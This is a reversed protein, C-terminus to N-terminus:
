VCVCVFVCAQACVRLRVTARVVLSSRLQMQTQPHIIEEKPLVAQKFMYGKWLRDM